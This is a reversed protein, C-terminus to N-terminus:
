CGPARENQSQDKGSILHHILAIMAWFLRVMSAATCSFARTSQMVVVSACNCVSSLLIHMLVFFYFLFIPPFGSGSQTEQRKPHNEWNKGCHRREWLVGKFLIGSGCVRGWSTLSPLSCGPTLHAGTLRSRGEPIGWGWCSILMFVYIQVFVVNFAALLLEPAVIWNWATQWDNDRDTLFLNTGTNSSFHSLMSWFLWHVEALASTDRRDSVENGTAKTQEAKWVQEAIRLWAWRTTM